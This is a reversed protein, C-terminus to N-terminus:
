QLKQLLREFLSPSTTAYWQGRQKWFNGFFIKLGLTSGHLYADIRYFDRGFEETFGEAELIDRNRELLETGLSDLQVPVPLLLEQKIVVGEKDHYRLIEEFRIREHAAPIHLFVLGSPTDFLAINQRLKSIYHWESNAHM